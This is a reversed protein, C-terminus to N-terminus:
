FKIHAGVERGRLSSDLVCRLTHANTRAYMHSEHKECISLFFFQLRRSALQLSTVSGWVLIAVAALLPLFHSVETFRASYFM